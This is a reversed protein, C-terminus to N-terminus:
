SLICSFTCVHIYLRIDKKNITIMQGLYDLAEASAGVALSYNLYLQCGREIPYEPMPKYRQKFSVVTTEHVQFGENIDLPIFRVSSNDAHVQICTRGQHDRCVQFNGQKKRAM